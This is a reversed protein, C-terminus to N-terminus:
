SRASASIYIQNNSIGYKITQTRHEWAECWAQLIADQHLVDVCVMIISSITGHSLGNIKATASSLGVVPIELSPHQATDTTKVQM